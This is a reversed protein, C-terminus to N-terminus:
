KMLSQSMSFLNIWHSADSKAELTDKVGSINIRHLTEEGRFIIYM